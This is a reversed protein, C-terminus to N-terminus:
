GGALQLTEGVARISDPTQYITNNFTFGVFGASLYPQLEQACQEPSGVFIHERREPSLRGVYARVDATGTDVIVPANMAREITAPDRGIEECYGFLVDTKHQLMEVGQAFWHTIDAYRAAIRITRKEGGGGVMIPPGGPQIPRPYNLAENARYYRGAFTTKEQTFMGKIIALAEELRDMRERVSPFDYGYGAHEEENWAAGIGMMARGASTIDLTTGLKALLAPNRYTVGTVQTGLRVRSTERALANLASWGELMPQTVDGVGPIQYLHDMVTVQRFGAEEATKAQEIVRSFLLEPPTGPFTYNPMHFGFWPKMGGINDTL